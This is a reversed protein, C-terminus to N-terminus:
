KGVGLDKRSLDLYRARLQNGIFRVHGAVSIVFVLIPIIGICEAKAGSSRMAELTLFALFMSTTFAIIMAEWFARGWRERRGFTFGNVDSPLVLYQEEIGCKDKFYQRVGNITKIYLYQEGRINLMVILVSVGILVLLISLFIGAAQLAASASGLQPSTTLYKYLSLFVAVISAPLSVFALYFKILENKQIHLDHYADIIRSYEQLMFKAGDSEDM